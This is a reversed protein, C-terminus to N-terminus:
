KLQYEEKLMFILKRADNKLRPLEGDIRFGLNYRITLKDNLLIKFENIDKTLIFPDNMALEKLKETKITSDRMSQLLGSVLEKPYNMDILENRKESAKSSRQEDGIYDEDLHHTFADYSSILSVISDNSFYRLTGSNKIQEITARSWTYPRNIDIWGVLTFLDINRIQNIQKGKLYLALSDILNVSYKMQEIIENVMVTDKELDQILSKAYQKVRQHEVYHERQNEALFGCFVALFLMIFEWLYHTWKTRASHSHHHVEM